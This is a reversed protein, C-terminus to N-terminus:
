SIGQLKRQTADYSGELTQGDATWVLEKYGGLDKASAFYICPNFQKFIFRSFNHTNVLMDM